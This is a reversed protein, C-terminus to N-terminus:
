MDQSRWRYAEEEKAKSMYKQALLKDEWDNGRHVGDWRYGPRIGFRNAKPPPGSYRPKEDEQKMDADSGKKSSKKKKRKKSVQQKLAYAAMPDEKRIENKRMDELRHDTEHRAFTSNQLIAMEQAKRELEARQVKGQNLNKEQEKQQDPGAAEPKTTRKGQADRYVTEGMGYKDVMVQADNQKRQQIEKEASNFDQYNQLGAKHGSSMRTPKKHDTEDDDSSDYRQRRQRRGSNDISKNDDVDDESDYRRRARDDSKTVDPRAEVQEKSKTKEDKVDVRRRKKRGFSDEEDSDYRRRHQPSPSKKKSDKEDESSDYRRRSRRMESPADEKKVPATDPKSDDESDYRRRPRRMTEDQNDNKGNSEDDSDYRRERRIGRPKVEPEDDESDYSKKTRTRQNSDDDDSSDYRRRQSPMDSGDKDDAATTNWTGRPQVKVKPLLMDGHAGLDQATVITPRDEEPIAMIDDDDDEKELDGKPFQVADDEDYVLSERIPKPEEYDSSTNHKKKKKKKKSKKKNSSADESSMYKSLYDLKSPM